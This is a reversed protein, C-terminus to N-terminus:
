ASIARGANLDGHQDARANGYNNRAVVHSWEQVISQKANGLLRVLIKFDYENIVTGRVSSGFDYLPGFLKKRAGMNMQGAIAAERM